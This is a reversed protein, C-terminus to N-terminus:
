IRFIADFMQNFDTHYRKNKQKQVNKPITHM